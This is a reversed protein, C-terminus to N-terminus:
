TTAERERRRRELLGGAFLYGGYLVLGVAALDIVLRLSAGSAWTSVHGVLPVSYWVTGRVQAPMVPAPDVADNADGQTTYARGQDTLVVAVVRHTTLDPNGSEPQFTVVDGIQLDDADTPRVVVVDGPDYTPEMSGSLVTLPHSGTAKPVGILAVGALVVTGLLLASLVRSVIRTM